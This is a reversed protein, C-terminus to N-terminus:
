PARCVDHTVTAADTAKSHDPPFTKKDDKMDILGAPKTQWAVSM